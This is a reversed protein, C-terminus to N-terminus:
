RKGNPAARRQGLPIHNSRAPRGGGVLRYAVLGYNWSLHGYASKFCKQYGPGTIGWWFVHSARLVGGGGSGGGGSGDSEMWWRM